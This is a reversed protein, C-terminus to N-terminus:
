CSSNTFLLAFFVQPQLAAGVGAGGQWLVPSVFGQEPNQEQSLDARMEAKGKKEPPEEHSCTSFGLPSVLSYSIECTSSTYLSAM